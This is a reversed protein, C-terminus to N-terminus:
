FREVLTFFIEMFNKNQPVNKWKSSGFPFLGDHSKTIVATKFDSIMFHFKPLMLSNIGIYDM